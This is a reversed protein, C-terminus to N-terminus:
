CSDASKYNDSYPVADPELWEVVENKYCYCEWRYVVVNQYVSSPDVCDDNTDNCPETNRPQFIWSDIQSGTRGYFVQLVRIKM